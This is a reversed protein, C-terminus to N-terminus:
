RNVKGRNKTNFSPILITFKAGAYFSHNQNDTGGWFYNTGDEQTIKIQNFFSMRYGATASIQFIDNPKISFELEPSVTYGLSNYEREKLYFPRLAPEESNNWALGFNGTYIIDVSQWGAKVRPNVNIFSEQALLLYGLTLNFDMTRFSADHKAVSTLLPSRNVTEVTDVGGTGNPVETLVVETAFSGNSEFNYNGGPSKSVQNFGLGFEFGVSLQKYIVGFEITGTPVIAENNSGFESHQASTIPLLQHFQILSDVPKNDKDLVFWRETHNIAFVHNNIDEVDMMRAEAGFSIYTKLDKKSYDFITAFSNMVFLSM